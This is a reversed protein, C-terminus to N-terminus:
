IRVPVHKPKRGRKKPQKPARKLEFNDITQIILKEELHYCHRLHHAIQDFSAGRSIWLDVVDYLIELENHNLRKVRFFSDM